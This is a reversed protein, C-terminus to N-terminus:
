CALFIKHFLGVISADILSVFLFNGLKFIFRFYNSLFVHQYNNRLAIVFSGGLMATIRIIRSRM